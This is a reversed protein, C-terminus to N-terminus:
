LFTCERDSKEFTFHLIIDFKSQFLHSLRDIHSILAQTVGRVNAILESMLISRLLTVKLEFPTDLAAALIPGSRWKWVDKM